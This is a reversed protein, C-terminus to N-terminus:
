EAGLFRLDVDIVKREVDVDRVADGVLPVLLDEGGDLRAVELADVSPLGLLRRVVGVERRGDRVACGVLDEAWWEDDELSPAESRPVM